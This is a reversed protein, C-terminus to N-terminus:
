YLLASHSLSSVKLSIISSYKIIRYLLIEYHLTSCKIIYSYLTSLWMSKNDGLLNMRKKMLRLIKEDDIKKDRHFYLDFSYDHFASSLM